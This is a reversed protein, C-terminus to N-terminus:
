KFKQHKWFIIKSSVKMRNKMKCMLSVLYQTTDKNMNTLLHIRKAFKVILNKHYPFKYHSSVSFCMLFWSRINEVIVILQYDKVESFCFSYNTLILIPM